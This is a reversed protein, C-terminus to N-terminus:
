AEQQHGPSTFGSKKARQVGLAGGIAKEECETANLGGAPPTPQHFRVKQRTPGAPRGWHGKGHMRYCKLTRSTAQAPSVSSKPANSGRPAGLPRKRANQLM